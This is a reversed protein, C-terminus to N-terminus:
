YLEPNTFPVLALILAQHYVSSRSLQQHTLLAIAGGQQKINSTGFIDDMVNGLENTPTLKDIVSKPLYLSASRSEGRQTESEIVMWAFTMRGEIGAELGVYFDNGPHSLKANAVRNRAGQYTQQDTIPQDPVDSAVAVGIFKFEQDPFGSAFASKVANIKAPNLSTIVVKKM